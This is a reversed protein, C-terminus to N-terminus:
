MCSPWTPVASSIHEALIIEGPSSSASSLSPQTDRLQADSSLNAAWVKESVDYGAQRMTQAAHRIVLSGDDVLLVQGKALNSSDPFIKPAEPM